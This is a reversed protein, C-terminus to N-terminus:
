EFASVPFLYGPTADESFQRRTRPMLRTDRRIGESLPAGFPHNGTPQSPRARSQSLTNRNMETGSLATRRSADAFLPPVASAM